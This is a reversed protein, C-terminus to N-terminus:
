AIFIGAIYQVAPNSVDSGAFCVVETGNNMERAVISLISLVGDARVNVGSPPSRVNVISGNIKLSVSDVTSHQCRFEATEGAFVNASAPAILVNIGGFNM